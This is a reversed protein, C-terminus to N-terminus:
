ASQCGKVCSSKFDQDFKLCKNYPTYLGSSYINSCLTMYYVVYLQFLQVTYYLAICYVFGCIIYFLVGVAVCYLVITTICHVYWQTAVKM